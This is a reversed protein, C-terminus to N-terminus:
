KGYKKLNITILKSSPKIIVSFHENEKMGHEHYLRAKVIGLLRKDAENTGYHDAVRSGGFNFLDQIIRDALRTTQGTLRM